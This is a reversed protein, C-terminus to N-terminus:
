STLVASCARLVIFRNQHRMLKRLEAVEAPLAQGLLRAAEEQIVPNDDTLGGLVVDRVAAPDVRGVLAAAQFRVLGDRNQLLPRLAQVVQQPVQDILAEGALIQLDQVDGTLLASAHNIADQHGLRALALKASTRVFIDFDTELKRLHEAANSLKSRGIARAAAARNLPVPDKMLADILQPTVGGQDALTAIADSKDRRDPSEVLRQLAALGATDGIASLTTAAALDGKETEAALTRRAADDGARALAATASTRVRADSDAALSRLIGVAVPELLGRDETNKGPGALWQEYSDLADIGRGAASQAEIKLSIAPHSRPRRELTQGAIKIAEDHRGAAIASWGRSIAQPESIPSPTQAQASAAPVALLLCLIGYRSTM